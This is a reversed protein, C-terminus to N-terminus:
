FYLGIGEEKLHELFMLVGLQNYFLEKKEEYSLNEINQTDSYPTLPYPDFCIKECKNKMEKEKM